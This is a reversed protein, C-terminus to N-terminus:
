GNRAALFDAWTVKGVAHDPALHLGDRFGRAVRGPFPVITVRRRRGTASLYDRAMEELTLIQPGGMVEVRGAPGHLALGALREAVEGTDVTQFRMGAPVPLVAPVASLSRLVKAILDHFQTARLVSCPLGSGTILREVAYKTSYYRLPHRDAGVISIYVLHPTGGGRRVAEMLNRAADLDGSHRRPDTACHVITDAGAAAKALGDLGEGTRLDGRHWTLGAEGAARERRSLGHVEAGERLLLPTVARGLTGSAGTVIIM